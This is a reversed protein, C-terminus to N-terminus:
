RLTWIFSWNAFFSLHGALFWYYSWTRPTRELIWDFNLELPDLYEVIVFYEVAFKILM